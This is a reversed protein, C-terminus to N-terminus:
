WVWHSSFWVRELPVYGNLWYIPTGGGRERNEGYVIDEGRRDLVNFGGMVSLFNCLKHWLDDVLITYYHM